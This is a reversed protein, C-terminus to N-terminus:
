TEEPGMQGIAYKWVWSSGDVYLRPFNWINQGPEGMFRVEALPWGPMLVEACVGGRDTVVFGFRGDEDLRSKRIITADPYGADVVFARMNKRAEHLLSGTIRGAGPNVFVGPVMESSAMRRKAM